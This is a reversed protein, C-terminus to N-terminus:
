LELGERKLVDLLKVCPLRLETCVDPIKVRPPGGSKDEETVVTGSNLSAAGILFPDASSKGKKLNLLTRFRALIERAKLQIEDSLPLFASEWQEIWKSLEDDQNQIELYVDEVSKIQGSDLLAGIFRWVPEFIDSPYTRRLETFSCTDFWYTSETTRRKSM